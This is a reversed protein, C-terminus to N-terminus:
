YGLDNHLKDTGVIKILSNKTAGLNSFQLLTQYDSSVSLSNAYFLTDANRRTDIFTQLAQVDSIIVNIASNSINSYTNGSIINMSNNLTMYDNVIVITLNSLTNGVYLSTFNGLIPTNNQVGDTKNTLNLIQRGVSLASNIDPYKSADSSYTVGSINNTHITFNILSDRVTTSLITYLTNATVTAVNFTTNTTNSLDTLGNLYIALTALDYQHPNEYYDGVNSNSLENTQWSSLQIDSNGLYNIVGPSLVDDGGFQATDFNYGLRDYVSM